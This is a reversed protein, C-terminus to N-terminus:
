RERTRLWRASRALSEPNWDDLQYIGKIELCVSMFRISSDSAARGTDRSYATALFHYLARELDKRPQGPGEKRAVPVAFAGLLDRLALVQDDRNKFCIPDVPGSHDISDAWASLIVDHRIRINRFRLYERAAPSLNRLRASIDKLTTRFEGPRWTRRDLLGLARWVCKEILALEEGVELASKRERSHRYDAVCREVAQVFRDCHGNPIAGIRCLEEGQQKTLRTM